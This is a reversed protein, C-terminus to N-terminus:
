VYGMNRLTRMISVVTKLDFKDKSRLSSEMDLWTIMDSPPMCSIKVALEAINHLGIGGAFGVRNVKKPYHFNAIPTGRGGSSDVLLHLNSPVKESFLLNLVQENNANYQLIFDRHRNARVYSTFAYLDYKANAAFNYNVQVRNFTTPLWDISSFNKLELVEKSANGCFHASLRVERYALNRIWEMSPYRPRGNNPSFLIGWEIAPFMWSVLEMSDISTHDDAGTFTITAIRM